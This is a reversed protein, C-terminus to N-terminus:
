FSAGRAGLDLTERKSLSIEDDGFVRFSRVIDSYWREDRIIEISDNTSIVEGNDTRQRASYQGFKEQV